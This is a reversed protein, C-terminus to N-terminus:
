AGPPATRHVVHRAAPGSARLGDRLIEDIAATDLRGWWHGDPYSIMLPGLNCPYQCSTHLLMASRKLQPDERLRARLHAWLDAAGLATCRPGMCFLLHRAFEPVESWAVPDEQWHEPQLEAVDPLRAAQELSAALVEALQPLEGLAPAFVIRPLAAPEPQRHRWRQVLKALWRLLANDTPLFVPQVLITRARPAAELCAGLAQPLSPAARDVYAHAVLARPLAGALRACLAELEPSAGGGYGGRGLLVVAEVPQACPAPCPTDSCNM